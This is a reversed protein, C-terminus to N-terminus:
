EAETAAEDGAPAEGEAPETTEAPEEPEEQVEQISLIDQEPDLEIEVGEPVPLDSVRIVAGIELGTIDVEIGEPIATVPAKVPIEFEEVNHVTGPTPEGVVVLPVTVEVKEGAKIALLDVHLIARSVPHRQIDKVLALQEADATKLTVVANKNSRVILFLEHAPLDLHVPEGEHGYVVAPVLGARRARRAAGKGFETRVTASLIETSM